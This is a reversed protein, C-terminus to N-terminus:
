EKGPRTRTPTSATAPRARRTSATWAGPRHTTRPPMSTSGRTRFWRPCRPDAALRKAETETLSGASFGSVASGYTRSIKGGYEAALDRKEATAAKEDLHVIYSGAVAGEANLGYVTSEAPQGAQAIPSVYLGTGVVTAVAAIATVIKTKGSRKHHATM